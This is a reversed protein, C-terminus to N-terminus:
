GGMAMIVGLGFIVLKMLQWHIIGGGALKSFKVDTNIQTPILRNDTSGDGLEGAYNSGWSWLNGSEDIALSHYKGAEIYRFKQESTLKAPINRNETTGDGLQGLYNYGLVL